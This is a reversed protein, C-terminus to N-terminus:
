GLRAKLLPRLLYSLVTRRGSQVDVQAVMGPRIPLTEAGRRLFARDTRVLVSYYAVKGRPTDEELTDESIQEVRGPLDGYVTYDYATIKVRAPMGPRLFAVDRPLIRAEVLLQDDVPTLQMIPEGPQVVGGRTTILVDNVRARVPAVLRTRNLQDERQNFIQTQAALEAKKAALEAYAEQMYTNRVETQRGTLAAIDKSLRLAEVESVAGRAALPEILNLQQRAYATEQALAQVTANLNHRRAAFLARESAIVPDNAPISAPFDIAGQGLVEAELRAIAATLATVQAGSELASSEFRARDLQVLPQGAQVIDGEKVLLDSLIGGELSQIVQVRSSPVVKGEGRSVEDVPAWAAWGVFVAIIAVCAWLVPRAAPHAEGVRSGSLLRRLAKEDHVAELM